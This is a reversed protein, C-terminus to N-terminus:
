IEEHHNFDTKRKEADALLGRADLIAADRQGSPPMAHLVDLWEKIQIHTSYPTVPPDILAYSM